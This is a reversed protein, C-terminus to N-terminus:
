MYVQWWPWVKHEFGTESLNQAVVVWVTLRVTALPQQVIPLQAYMAYSATRTKWEQSCSPLLKKLNIYIIYIYIPSSPKPPVAQHLQVLAKFQNNLSTLSNSGLQIKHQWRASENEKSPDQQSPTWPDVPCLSIAFCHVWSQLVPSEGTSLM